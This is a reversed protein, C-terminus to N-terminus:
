ATEEPPASPASSATPSLPDCIAVTINDHGGCDRAYTVLTRALDGAGASATQQAILKSLAEPTDAYNWLGDSCLLVRDGADLGATVVPPDLKPADAGLWRTIVHARPDQQAELESMTGGAVEEAAWSHDVSLATVAGDAHVRYARSDGVWGVTVGGPRVVATVITCSPPGLSVLTRDFTIGLVADQAASIATRTAAELVTSDADAPAALLTALAVDAAAQSADDPRQTTSVGDCVVLVAGGEARRALAQADENRHHRIGRDTVGALASDIEREEHDRSAPRRLGCQSCYGDADM